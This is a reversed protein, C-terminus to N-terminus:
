LLQYFLMERLHEGEEMGYFILLLKSLFLESDSQLPYEKERCHRSTLQSQVQTSDFLTAPAAKWPSRAVVGRGQYGPGKMAGWARSGCPDDRGPVHPLCV